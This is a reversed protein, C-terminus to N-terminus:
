IREGLFKPAFLSRCLWHLGLKRDVDVVCGSEPPFREYENPGGTTRKGFESKDVVVLYLYCLVSTDRHGGPPFSFQRDLSLQRVPPLRSSLRSKEKHHVQNKTSHDSLAMDAEPPLASMSSCWKKVHTKRKSFQGHLQILTRFASKSRM